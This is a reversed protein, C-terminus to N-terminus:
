NGSSECSYLDLRVNLQKRMFPLMIGFLEKCRWSHRQQVFYSCGRIAAIKFSNPATSAICGEVLTSVTADLHLHALSVFAATMMDGEFPTTEMASATRRFMADRVEDQVDMAYSVLASDSEIDFHRSARLLSVLSWAAQDNGNRLAKRLADLLAVKKMMSSSRAEKLNSAVEFVDPLLFLLSSQLPYLLSRRRTNDTVTHTMDFLTDAGGEFRRQFQHLQVFEEPHRDIWRHILLPTVVAIVNQYSRRFHLYSSCIEQTILSLKNGDVWFSALLRLTALAGRDAELMARASDATTSSSTTTRIGHFVTRLHDFSPTWSSATVYQVVTKVHHDIESSRSAASDDGSLSEATTQSQWDAPSASVSLPSSAAPHHGHPQDLLTHSPIHFNEPLPDILAKLADLTRGVLVADLPQLPAPDTAAAEANQTHVAWSASCSEATLALVYVESLFVHTPHTTM